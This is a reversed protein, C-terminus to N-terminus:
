KRQATEDEKPQLLEELGDWPIYGLPKRFWVADDTIAVQIAGTDSSAKVLDPLQFCLPAQEDGNRLLLLSGRPPTVTALALVLDKGRAVANNFLRSKNSWYIEVQGPKKTADVQQQAAWKETERQMEEDQHRRVEPDDEARKLADPLSWRRLIHGNDEALLLKGSFAGALWLKGDSRVAPTLEHYMPNRDSEELEQRELRLLVKQDVGDYESRVLLAPWEDNKVASLDGKVFRAVSPVHPSPAWLLYGRSATVAAAHAVDGDVVTTLKGQVYVAFFERARLIAVEGNDALFFAPPRPYPRSSPASLWYEGAPEGRRFLYLKHGEPLQPVVVGLTRGAGAIRAGEPLGKPFVRTFPQFLSEPVSTCGLPEAGIAVSAAVMLLLSCLGRM